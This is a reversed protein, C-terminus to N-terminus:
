GGTSPSQRKVIINISAVTKMVNGEVTIDQTWSYGRASDAPTYYTNPTIKVRNDYKGDTLEILRDNSKKIFVAPSDKDNGTLEYWVRESQKEIDCCIQMFVESTLVSNQIGYVTQIAPYFYSHMDFSQCYNIGEGWITNKAIKTLYTNTIKKMSSIQNYPSLNYSLGPKLSGNGAGAYSARKDALDFLLSVPKTFEDNLLIGSQGVIVARCAPTGWLASEAYLSLASKLALGVSIEDSVSLQPSGVIHTGVAVHIDKRLAMWKFLKIKVDLSFGTDYIASFPFKASDLLPYAPNQYNNDIEWKVQSEFTANSLDGDSGGQLYATFSENLITGSDSVQFGYFPIGSSDIATFPDLLWISEIPAAGTPLNANEANLLINLVAELNAEHVEVTGLPGYTPSTGTSIGDDNYNTVLSQITLDANTKYNYANPKLCFQISSEGLVDNVIAASTNPPQFMLQANYILAQQNSIIDPDGPRSSLQNATWLKIGYQNGLAGVFPATVTLLPYTFNASNTITMPASLDQETLSGTPVWSFILTRGGTIPTTGYTPAGNGDTVVAGNDDRIFPYVPSTHDVEVFLTLSANAPLNTTTTVGNTTVSLGRAIRKIFVSNGKALIRRALVTAHNLYPGRIDVTADGFIRPLDGPGCLVIDETPGWPAQIYFLPLHIPVAEAQPLLPTISRDDIGNLIAQPVNNTIYNTAM